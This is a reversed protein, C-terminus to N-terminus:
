GCIVRVKNNIYSLMAKERQAVVKSQCSINLHSGIIVTSDAEALNDDVKQLTTM